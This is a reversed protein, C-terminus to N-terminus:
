FNLLERKIAALVRLAEEIASQETEYGSSGKLHDRRLLLAPEAAEIRKFLDNAHTAQLAAQYADQWAPFRLQPFADSDIRAALM